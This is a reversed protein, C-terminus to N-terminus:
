LRWADPAFLYMDQIRKWRATHPPTVGWQDLRGPPWKWYEPGHFEYTDDIQAVDGTYEIPFEEPGAFYAFVNNGAGHRGIGWEIPYGADRMRGAGRMLSDLDPMEFAVHNLTPKDSRGMVISSHDANDCHLFHLPGAHDILRFGLVDIMFANSKEVDAANLNVHSLKRVRDKVDATDTHDKVGCVIAMNRGEVDAFGFGYGGGPSTLEHPTETRCGAAAIKAHLAQVIDRGAADFVIRRISFGNPAPHVALIHHHAGTGRFHIAGDRREIETLNWVRSYFDAAREPNSMEIEISRV